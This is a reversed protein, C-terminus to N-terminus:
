RQWERSHQTWLLKRFPSVQSCTVSGTHWLARLFFDLLLFEFHVLIFINSFNIHFSLCPYIYRCVRSVLLVVWIFWNTQMVYSTRCSITAVRDRFCREDPLIEFVSGCFLCGPSFRFVDADGTIHWEPVWLVTFAASSSRFHLVYPLRHDWCFIGRSDTSQRFLM